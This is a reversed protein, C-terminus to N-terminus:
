SNDRRGKKKGGWRSKSFNMSARPTSKGRWGTGSGFSNSVNKEGTVEM